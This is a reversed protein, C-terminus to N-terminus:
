LRCNLLYIQHCFIPWDIDREIGKSESFNFLEYLFRLNPQVVVDARRVRVHMYANVVSAKTTASAEKGKNEDLMRVLAYAMCVVASRSSGVQCHVLTKGGAAHGKRLFEVCKDLHPFISDAGDDLVDEIELHEDIYPNKGDVKYGISLVRNIGMHRLLEFNNAHDVSGLYVDEYIPSPFGSKSFLWSEGEDKLEGYKYDLDYDVGHHHRHENGPIVPSYKPILNDLETLLMKHRHLINPMPRQCSKMYDLIADKLALGKSYMIYVLPLLVADECPLRSSFVLTDGRGRQSHLYMFKCLNIFIFPDWSNLAFFIKIQDQADDDRQISRILQDIRSITFPGVAVNRCDILCRYASKDIADGSNGFKVVGTAARTSEPLNENGNAGVIRAASVTEICADEVALLDLQDPLEHPKQSPPTTFLQPQNAFFQRIRDSTVSVVFTKKALSYNVPKAASLGPNALSRRYHAKQANSILSAFQLLKSNGKPTGVSYLVVDSLTAWKAIQIHLNRISYGSRPDVDKFQPLFDNPDLSLSTNRKKAYPKTPNHNDQPKHELIEHPSISNRLTFDCDVIDPEEEYVKVIVLGNLDPTKPVDILDDKTFSIKPQDQVNSSYYKRSHERRKESFYIRQTVNSERIGHLWPFVVDSPPLPTQYYRKVMAAFEDHNIEHIIKNPTYSGDNDSIISLSPSPSLYMLETEM